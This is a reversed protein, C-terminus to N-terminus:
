NQLLAFVRRVQPPACILGPHARAAYGSRRRAFCLIAFLLAISLLSYLCILLLAASVALALESTGALALPSKDLHYITNHEQPEGGDESKVVERPNFGAGAVLSGYVLDPVILPEFDKEV